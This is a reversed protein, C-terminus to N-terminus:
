VHEDKLGLLYDASVDLVKCIERLSDLSPQKNGNCYGNVVQHVVHIQRALESQSMKRKELVERLLEAFTKM